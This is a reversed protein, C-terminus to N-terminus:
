NIHKKLIKNQIRSFTHYKDENAYVDGLNTCDTCVEVIVSILREKQLFYLVSATWVAGLSLNRIAHEEGEGELCKQEVKSQLFHYTIERM